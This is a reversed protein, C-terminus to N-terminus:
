TKIGGIKPRFKPSVVAPRKAEVSMDGMREFLEMLRECTSCLLFLRGEATSICLSLPKPRECLECLSPAPHPVRTAEM